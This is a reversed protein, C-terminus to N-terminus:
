RVEHIKLTDNIMAETVPATVCNGRKFAFIEFGTWRVGPQSAHIPSVAAVPTATFTPAFHM